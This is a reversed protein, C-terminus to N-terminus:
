LEDGLRGDDMFPLEPVIGIRTDTWAPWLMPDVATTIVDSDTWSSWTDPGDAPQEDIPTNATPSLDPYNHRSTHAPVPVGNPRLRGQRTDFRPM